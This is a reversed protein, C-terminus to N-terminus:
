KWYIFDTYSIHTRISTKRKTGHAKYPKGVFVLAYLISEIIIIPRELPHTKWWSERERASKRVSAWDSHLSRSRHRHSRQSRRDKGNNRRETIDLSYVDKTDAEKSLRDFPRAKTRRAESTNAGAGATPTTEGNSESISLLDRQVPVFVSGFLLCFLQHLYIGTKHRGGGGKVGRGVQSVRRIHVSCARIKDNSMKKEDRENKKQKGISEM